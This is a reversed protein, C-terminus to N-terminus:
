IPSNTNTRLTARALQAAQPLGFFDLYAPLQHDLMPRGPHVPLGRQAAHRLLPTEAPQMIVDVVLTGAPLAAPDLPLPDDPKMGLPTTNVAIDCDAQSPTRLSVVTCDAFCAQLHSALAEARATHVDFLGLWVVGASLLAAAVASGAGGAGVLLVKRGAPDHGAARLGAVFGIGDFLDGAIAGGADRRIANVAGVLRAPEGPQAVLDFLTKKYPVTVLLGGISGSALLGRCTDLVTAPPLDLPVVLADIGARRFLANFVLPAKVQSIPNGVVPFLLTHGSVPPAIDPILLPAQM